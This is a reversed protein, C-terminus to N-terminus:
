QVRSKAKRILADVGHKFDDRQEEFSPQLFPRPAIRSTGYELYPAYEAEVNVRYLMPKVHEVDLSNVLNGTDTAPPEGPASAQHEVGNRKYIKGTKPGHQIKLVARDKIRNATKDCLDDAERNLAAPLALLRRDNLRIKMTPKMEGERLVGAAGHDM